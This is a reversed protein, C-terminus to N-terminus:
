ADGIQRLFDTAELLHADEARARRAFVLAKQAEGQRHAIQAQRLFAVARTMRCPGKLLTIARLAKLATDLDGIGLALEALDAAVEGNNRDTDLAAVLWELQRRVDGYVAAVRAM